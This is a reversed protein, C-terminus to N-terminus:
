AAAGHCKKFKKGSGCHCPDNRGLKPSERKITEPAPFESDYYFWNGNIKRFEAIETQRTTQFDREYIVTFHITAKEEREQIDGVELGKWKSQTSWNTISARDLQDRTEPHHTEFIYDINGAVFAEYRRELLEKATKPWTNSIPQEASDM